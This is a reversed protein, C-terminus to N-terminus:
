IKEKELLGSRKLLASVSPESGKFNKYLEMPHQSGGKSLISNKFKAATEQNFIGEIKFTEFADADLVEAWKYSYYGASYGGQFIHSFGCSTNNTLIPPLVTTEQSVKQEFDGVNNINEPNTTHWAMDLKGLSIQRTCAYGSQFNASEKIKNVYDEPILAGTEYHKAFLDLCEKELVWNEMIQSPLEVFDWYVSTGSLSGYTCKSLLGHLAHGFEHFLTSVDNFSLLAPKSETARPFNCVIAIQPRQDEGNIIKQGKYATKWAGNRKGLRPHLDVYFIGILADANDKVEFVKVDEHYVPIDTRQTFSLGYLKDAVTFIGNLCNEVEFYPKLLENDINYKAKKLKESYYAFDWRNIENIGYEEKAFVNLEKIDQLAKPKSYDLLDNLFNVVTDVKGAMREQLVFDAHSEFGLLHARKSRLLAIEKVIDQNDYDNGKFARSGYAKLIEKRLESSDNYTIFPIYSPFDLTFIWKGDENKEKALMAAAEITGDPLGSLDEKNEIILQFDNTEKLVNEGFALSLAAKREDIARLQDKQDDNLNAGNRVFGKYSKNLLMIQEASLTERLTTNNYVANVRQFLENDLLIDNSYKTLLPSIERAIAQLENNTEASNLNFFVSSVEDLLKGSFELAEITNKFNATEPNSKISQIDAVGEEIGKIIAPKFHKNKIKNFPFTNFPTNYKEFFPNM